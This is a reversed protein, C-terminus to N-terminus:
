NNIEKMICVMERLILLFLKKVYKIINDINFEKYMKCIMFFLNLEYYLIYNNNNLVRYLDSISCRYFCDYFYEM